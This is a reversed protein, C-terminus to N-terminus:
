ITEVITIANLPYPFFNFGTVTDFLNGFVPNYNYNAQVTIPTIGFSRNCHGNRTGYTCTVNINLPTLNAIVPTGAGAINGFIVINQTNLTNQATIDVFGSGTRSNVSIYRGGTEVSKLLVNQQYLLFGMEGAIALMLLLFPFVVAFEVIVIGKQNNQTRLHINTKM